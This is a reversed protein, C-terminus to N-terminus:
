QVERAHHVAPLPVQDMEVGEEVEAVLRDVVANLAEDPVHQVVLGLDVATSLPHHLQQV